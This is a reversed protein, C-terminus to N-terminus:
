INSAGHNGGEARELVTIRTEHNNARKDLDILKDNIVEHEDKMEGLRKSTEDLITAQRTLSANIKMVPPLVIALFSGLAIIVGVVGWEDM